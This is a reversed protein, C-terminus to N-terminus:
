QRDTPHVASWPRQHFDTVNTLSVSHSWHDSGSLPEGGPQVTPSLTSRGRAGAWDGSNWGFDFPLSPPSVPPLPDPAAM